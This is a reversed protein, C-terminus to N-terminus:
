QLMGLLTVAQWIIMLIVIWTFLLSFIVFASVKANDIKKLTWGIWAFVSITSTFALTILPYYFATTPDMRAAYLSYVALFVSILNFLTSKVIAGWNVKKEIRDLSSQLM